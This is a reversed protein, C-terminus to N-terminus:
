SAPRPAEPSRALVDAAEDVVVLPLLLRDM